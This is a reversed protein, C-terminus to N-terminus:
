GPNKGHDKKDETEENTWTGYVFRELDPLVFLEYVACRRHYYNYVVKNAVGGTPDVDYPGGTTKVISSPIMVGPLPINKGCRHCVYPQGGRTFMFGGAEDVGALLYELMEKFIKKRKRATILHQGALWGILIGGILEIFMLLIM